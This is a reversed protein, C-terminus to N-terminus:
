ANSPKPRPLVAPRALKLNLDFAFNSGKGPNSNLSLDSNMFSLIKKSITLGLGTGGYLRSTNYDAQVFSDFIDKQKKIPIGIGTDSVSFRLKVLGNNLELKEIKLEVLGRETFKFANGLLNKLVQIIMMRDGLLDDPIGIDRSIRFVLFKDKAVYKFNSELEKLLDSVSFESEVYNVHGSHIKNLDLINNILGLLHEGSYKLAQLNEVQNPLHEEMLMINTLGIVANLPTRIEHSMTSLFEDKAQSARQLEIETEKLTTVDSMTGITGTPNGKKDFTLSMNIEIWKVERNPKFYKFVTNYNKKRESLFHKIRQKEHRNMGTM